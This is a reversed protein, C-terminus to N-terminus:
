GFTVDSCSFFAETSQVSGDRKVNGQWIAYIMHKGSKGAPLVVPLDVAFGDETQDIRPSDAVLFPAAELADWTLPKSQDWDDRTVYFSFTYPQHRVTPKYRLVTAAGSELATSPWDSHVENLSEFGSRGASCLQGDPVSARYQPTPQGRYTDAVVLSQWDSIPAGGAAVVSQCAESRPSWGERACGLSRSLPRETAGHATATATPPVTASLALAIAALATAPVFRRRRHPFRHMLLEKM